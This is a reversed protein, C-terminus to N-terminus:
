LIKFFLFIFLCNPGTQTCSFIEHFFSVVESEECIDIYVCECKKGCYCISHLTM